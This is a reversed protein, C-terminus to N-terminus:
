GLDWELASELFVRNGDIYDSIINFDVYNLSSAQRPMLFVQRLKSIQIIAFILLFLGILQLLTSSHKDL